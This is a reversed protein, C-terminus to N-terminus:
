KKPDKKDLYSPATDHPYECISHEIFPIPLIEYFMSFPEFLEIVLLTEFIM